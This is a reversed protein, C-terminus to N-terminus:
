EFQFGKAKAQEVVANEMVKDLTNAESNEKTAKATFEQIKKDLELIEKQVDTREKLLKELYNKRTAEDMQQMEKPLASTEIPKNEKYADLIDWDDNRYQAKAKYLTRQASNSAGYTNANVDQKMQREKKSEGM